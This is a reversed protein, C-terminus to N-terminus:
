VAQLTFYMALHERNDYRLLPVFYAILLKLPYNINGYNLKCSTNFFDCRHQIANRNAPSSTLLYM